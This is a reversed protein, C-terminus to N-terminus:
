CTGTRKGESQFTGARGTPVVYTWVTQATMPILSISDGVAVLSRRLTLCIYACPLHKLPKGSGAHQRHEKLELTVYEAM